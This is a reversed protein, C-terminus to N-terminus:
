RRARNTRTAAVAGPLHAWTNGRVAHRLTDESVGIETAIAVITQGNQVRNRAASVLPETLVGYNKAEGHAARGRQAMEKNNEDLTGYRLHDPNCCRPNDCAHLVPKPEPGLIRALAYRHALVTRGTGDNFRGYGKANLLGTWEICTTTMGPRLPGPQLYAEFRADPTGRVYRRKTGTM